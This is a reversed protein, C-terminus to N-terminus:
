DILYKTVIEQEVHAWRPEGPLPWDYKALIPEVNDNIWDYWADENVLIIDHWINAAKHFYRARSRVLHKVSDLILTVEQSSITDPDRPPYDSENTVTATVANPRYEMEVGDEFHKLQKPNKVTFGLKQYWRVLQDTRTVYRSDKAYAKAFLELTVQHKNALNILLSVAKSAHGKQPELTMVDHVYVRNQDHNMTGVEMAAGGVIRQRHAFPHDDSMGVFDQIFANANGAPARRMKIVQEVLM